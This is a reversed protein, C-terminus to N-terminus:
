AFLVHEGQTAIDGPVELQGHGEHFRRSKLAHPLATAIRWGMGYSATVLGWCLQQWALQAQLIQAVTSSANSQAAPQTTM